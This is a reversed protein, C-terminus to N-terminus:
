LVDLTKRDDINMKKYESLSCGMIKKFQTSLHAPSSYHLKYAIESFSLDKYSILEKVKEIKQLIIYKEITINEKESFLNSLYTYPKKTKDSLIKSFNKNLTERDSHHIINIIITKITEIIKSDDNNILEFGIAKLRIDLLNYDINDNFVEAEGLKVSEFKIKLNTLTDEVATICRPCVMNKIHLTAKSM